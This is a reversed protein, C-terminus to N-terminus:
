KFTVYSAVSPTNACAPCLCEGQTTFRNDDEAFLNSTCWSCQNYQIEWEKKNVFSGSATPFVKKPPEEVDFEPAALKATWPSVKYYTGESPSTICTTIDGYIDEGVFNRLTADQNLYLRISNYPRKRDFCSLYENGSKDTHISLLELLVDKSNIYPTGTTNESVGSPKKVSTAKEVAAKFNAINSPMVPKARFKSTDAMHTELMKGNIDIHISYHQDVKFEEPTTFKIGARSLAAYLMWSESAWFLTQDDESKCFFLPREENRLFNLTEEAKDWWVLAWAGEITEITDKLGNKELHHYLNESDVSFDNSNDLKWKNKLTGNHVGVLSDFDFPHANRVNIAGTTAFRNHGILVKQLPKMAREFSKSDFLQFPDGLHKAVSVQGSVRHVAAIGTSDEGRLSDLILLTKFVREHSANISGAIGVLGCM